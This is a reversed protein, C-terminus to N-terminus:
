IKNNGNKSEMSVFTNDSEKKITKEKEEKEMQIIRCQTIEPKLKKVYIKTKKM